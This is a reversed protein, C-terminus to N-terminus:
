RKGVLSVDLGPVANPPLLAREILLSHLVSEFNMYVIRLASIWFCSAFGL